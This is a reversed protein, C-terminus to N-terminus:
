KKGKKKDNNSQHTLNEMNLQEFSHIKQIPSTHIFNVSTHPQGPPPSIPQPPGPFPFYPNKQPSLGYPM